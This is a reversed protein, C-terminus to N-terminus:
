GSSSTSTTPVASGGTTRAHVPGAARDGRRGHRGRRRRRFSRSEQRSLLQLLRRPRLLRRAGRALQRRPGPSCGRHRGARGISRDARHGGHRGDTRVSPRRHGRPHAPHDSRGAHGPHAPPHRSRRRRLAPHRRRAGGGRGHRRVHQHPRRGRRRARDGTGEPCSAPRGYRQGGRRRAGDQLVRVVGARVAGRSRGGIFRGSDLVDRFAAEVEARVEETMRTLDAFPIPRGAVPKGVFRDPRGGARQAQCMAPDCTRASIGPEPREM